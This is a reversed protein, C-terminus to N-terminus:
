KEQEHSALQQQLTAVEAEKSRLELASRTRLQALEQLSCIGYAYIWADPILVHAIFQSVQWCV